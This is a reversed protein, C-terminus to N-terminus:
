SDAAVRLRKPTGSPCALFWPFFVDQALHLLAKEVKYTKSVLHLLSLGPIHRDYLLPKSSLGRLM